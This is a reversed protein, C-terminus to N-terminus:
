TTLLGGPAGNKIKDKELFRYAKPDLDTLIQNRMHVWLELFPTTEELRAYSKIIEEETIGSLFEAIDYIHGQLLGSLTLHKKHSTTSFLIEVQSLMTLFPQNPGLRQLKHLSSSSDTLCM